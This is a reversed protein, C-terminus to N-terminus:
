RPLASLLGYGAIWLFGEAERVREEAAEVLTGLRAEEAERIVEALLHLVAGPSFSDLMDLLCQRAEHETM